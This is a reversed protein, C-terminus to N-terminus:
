YRLYAEHAEKARRKDVGLYYRCTTELRNHGLIEKVHVIPCGNFLLNTATTHRLIHPTVRKLLNVKKSYRQFFGSVDARKLRTGRNTVFLAEENDSRQELYYNVWKLCRTSFFVAREKNGKGIIKAESTEFNISSVNLSLAESIRMGTGLLVEVLVRFRLGDMNILQKNNGRRCKNDIKIADIFQQVEENTLFIVERRSRKPSKINKYDMVKLHKFEKIFKLYSKLAFVVSAVRSEGAGRNMIKQKLLIIHSSDLENIAIDGIDRIVWELSEKYKALTQTSFILEYQAYQLFESLLESLKVGASNLKIGDNTNTEITNELFM